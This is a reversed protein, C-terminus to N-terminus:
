KRLRELTADTKPAIPASNLMQLAKRIDGLRLAALVRAELREKDSREREPEESVMPKKSRAVAEKWLAEYDGDSWRVLRARILETFNTKKAIRKGGRVPLWLICKPFRFFDSWAAEQKTETAEALLRGWITAFNSVQANPVRKLVPTDVRCIEMLPVFYRPSNVDQGRAGKPLPRDKKAFPGAKAPASKVEQSAGGVVSKVEPVPVVESTLKKALASEAPPVCGEAGPVHPLRRKRVKKSVQNDSQPGREKKEEGKKAGKRAGGRSDEKAESILNTSQPELYTQNETHESSAVQIETHASSVVQPPHSVSCLEGGSSSSCGRKQGSPGCHGAAQATVVNFFFSSSGSNSSNGSSENNKPLPGECAPDGCMCCEGEMKICDSGDRGLIRLRRWPEATVAPIPDISPSPDIAPLIQVVPESVSGGAEQAPLGRNLADVSGGMSLQVFLNKKIKPIHHARPPQVPDAPIKKCSVCLQTMSTIALSCNPCIRCEHDALWEPSPVFGQAVHVSVHARFRSFDCLRITVPKGHNGGGCQDFPCVLPGKVGSVSMEPTRWRAAGESYSYSIGTNLFLSLLLVLLISFLIEWRAGPVPSTGLKSPAAFVGISHYEKVVSKVM